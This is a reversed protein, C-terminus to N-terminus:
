AARSPTSGPFGTRAAASSSTTVPPSSPSTPRWRTPRVGTTPPGAAASDSRRAPLGNSVVDTGRPVTVHVDFRAKDLPHDNAPFWWPAMHPENMTVVEDADALWNREGAYSLRGPKGAYRVVVEFREGAPM